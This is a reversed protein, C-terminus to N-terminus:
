MLDYMRKEQLLEIMGEVLDNVNSWTCEGIVQVMMEIIEPEEELEDSIQAVSKGKELKKLVQVFLKRWGGRVDIQREREEATMYSVEMLKDNKINCVKQHLRILREDSDEGLSEQGSCEVYRLFDVLVKPVDNDNKGKTNLFIKKTEDGLSVDEFELYRNEFTYCYSDKGFLDFCCIVIIYTPNLKDFRKEGSELIPADLMAQYFRSRKPINGENKKQMEVNFINGDMDEVYFDMRIGRKGPLNKIVKQGEKWRIEKIKKNLIIEIVDKCTELDVMAVDFLFDDSLNLESLPKIPVITEQKTQMNLKEKTM